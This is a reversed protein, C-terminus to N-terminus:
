GATPYKANLDSQREACGCSWGFKEQFWAKCADGSVPGILRAIVEGFRKQTKAAALQISDSHKVRGPLYKM